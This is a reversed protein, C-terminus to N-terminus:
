QWMDLEKYFKAVEKRAWIPVLQARKSIKTGTILQISQFYHIPHFHQSKNWIQIKEKAAAMRQPM